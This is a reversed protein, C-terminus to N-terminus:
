QHRDVSFVHSELTGALTEALWRLLRYQNRLWEEGGAEDGVLRASPGFSCRIPQSATGLLWKFYIVLAEASSTYRIRLIILWFSPCLTWPDLEFEIIEHTSLCAFDIMFLRM